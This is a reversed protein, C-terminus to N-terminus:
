AYISLPESYTEDHSGGTISFSLPGDGIGISVNDGFLATTHVYCVQVDAIQGEPIRIAYQGKASVLTGSPLKFRYVIGHKNTYSPQIEQISSAEIEGYNHGSVYTAQASHSIAISDTKRMAYNKNYQIFGEIEYIRYNYGVVNGYYYATTYITIYGDDSNTTNSYDFGSRTEFVEKQIIIQEFNTKEETSIVEGYETLVKEKTTYKNKDEFIGVKEKTITIKEVNEKVVENEVAYMDITSAGAMGITATGFTLCFVLVMLLVLKNKM